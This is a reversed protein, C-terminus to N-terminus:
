KPLIIFKSLLAAVIAGFLGQSGLPAIPLYRGAAVAEGAQNVGEALNIPVIMLVTALMSLFGSTIKDLKYSNGLNSGITFAAYLSMLGVTFRFPVDLANLYPAVWETYGPIPLNRIITFFSGVVTLPLISILGNRVAQLHRQNGIANAVPLLKM